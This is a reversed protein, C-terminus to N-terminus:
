SKKTFINSLFLFMKATFFTIKCWIIDKSKEFPKREFYQYLLYQNNRSMQDRKKSTYFSDINTIM